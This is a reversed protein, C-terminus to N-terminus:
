RPGASRCCRVRGGCPGLSAFVLFFYGAFGAGGFMGAAQGATKAERALEAKALAVERRVLTSLDKAVEATLGGVSTDTTDHPRPETPDTM